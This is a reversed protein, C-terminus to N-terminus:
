HFGTMRFCVGAAKIAPSKPTRRETGHFLSSSTPRVSRKRPYDNTPSWKLFSIAQVTESMPVIFIIKKGKFGYVNSSGRRLFQLSLWPWLELSMFKYRPRRRVKTVEPCTEKKRKCKGTHVFVYLTRRFWRTYGLSSETEKSQM